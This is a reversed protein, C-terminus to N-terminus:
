GAIQICIGLLKEEMWAEGSLNQTCKNKECHMFWKAAYYHEKTQNKFLMQLLICM